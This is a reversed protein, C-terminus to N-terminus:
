GEKEFGLGDLLIVLSEKEADKEWGGDSSPCLFIRSGSTISGQFLSGSASM